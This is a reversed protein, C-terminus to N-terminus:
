LVDETEKEPKFTWRLAFYAIVLTFVLVAIFIHWVTDPNQFGTTCSYKNPNLFRDIQEWWTLNNLWQHYAESM